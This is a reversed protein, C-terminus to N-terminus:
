FISYINLKYFNFHKHYHFRPPFEVHEVYSVIPFHSSKELHREKKETKHFVKHFIAHTTPKKEEKLKFKYVEKGPM